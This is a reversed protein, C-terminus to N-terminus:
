FVCTLLNLPDTLKIKLNVGPNTLVNLKFEEEVDSIGAGTKPRELTEAMGTKRKKRATSVCLFGNVFKQSM